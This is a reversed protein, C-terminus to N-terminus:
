LGGFLEAATNTCFAFGSCDNKLKQKFIITTESRDGEEDTQAAANQQQISIIGVAGIFAAMVVLMGVAIALSTHNM